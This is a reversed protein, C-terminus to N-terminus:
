SPKGGEIEIDLISNTDNLIQAVAERLSQLTIGGNLGAGTVVPLLGLSTVGDPRTPQAYLLLAGVLVEGAPVGPGDVHVEILGTVPTVSYNKGSPKFSM